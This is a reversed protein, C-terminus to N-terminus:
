SLGDSVIRRPLESGRTIEDEGRSMATHNLPHSSKADCDICHGIGVLKSSGIIGYRYRRSGRTEVMSVTLRVRVFNLCSPNSRLQRGAILDFERHRPM